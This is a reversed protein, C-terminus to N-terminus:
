ERGNSDDEKEDNIIIEDEKNLVPTDEVNKMLQQLINFVKDRSDRSLETGVTVNIQNNQQYTIAPITDIGEINKQSSDMALQVVKMWNAIDKNDFNHPMEKLRRVMQEILADQVDNLASIRLVQRKAQFANFLHTLDKLKDVDTEEVIDDILAQDQEHLSLKADKEDRVEIGTENKTEDDM